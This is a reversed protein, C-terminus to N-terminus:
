KENNGLEIAMVTRVYDEDKFLSMSGKVQLIFSKILLSFANYTDNFIINKNKNNIMEFEFVVGMYDNSNLKLEVVLNEFKFEVNGTSIINCSNFTHFNKGLNKFYRELINILHISYKNWTGNSRATIKLINEINKPFSNIEKSFYLGSSTFFQNKFKRLNLIKNLDKVNIAIPKDILIPLEFKVIEKLISYHNEYDDKALIIADINNGFAQLNAEVNPIHSFKAVHSAYNFDSCYIKTIDINKFLKKKPDKNKLYNVIIPFPVNDLYEREYGNIIASWSYPHGNGVSNGIIGIKM